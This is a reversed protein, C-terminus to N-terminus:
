DSRLMPGTHCCTAGFHLSLNLTQRQLVTSRAECRHLLAIIDKLAAQRANRHHATEPEHVPVFALFVKAQWSL